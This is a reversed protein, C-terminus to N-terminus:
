VKAVNIGEHELFEQWNHVRTYGTLDHLGRNFPYDMCYIRAQTNACIEAVTRPSDDIFCHVGMDRILPAKAGGAFYLEKRCPFNHEKLAEVTDRYAYQPRNTIYVIDHGAAVIANLGDVAGPLLDLNRYGGSKGFKHFEDWFTEKDLSDVTEYWYYSTVEEDELYKVGAKDSLWLRFAKSFDFCIGDLDIGFLRTSM